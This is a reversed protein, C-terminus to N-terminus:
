CTCLESEDWWVKVGRGDAAKYRVLYQDETLPYNARGVVTGSESSEIIRVKDGNDYRFKEM